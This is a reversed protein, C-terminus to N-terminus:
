QTTLNPTPEAPAGFIRPDPLPPLNEPLAATIARVHQKLKSSIYLTISFFMLLAVGGDLLYRTLLALVIVLGVLYGSMMRVRGRGNIYRSMVAPWHFIWYFNYFPIFHKGVAEAATIPYRGRTLEILIKHLRHVCILWYVSGGIQVLTLGAIIRKEDLDLAVMLTELVVFPLVFVFGLWVWPPASKPVYEQPSEPVVASLTLM